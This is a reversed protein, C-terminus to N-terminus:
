LTFYTSLPPLPPPLRPQLPLNFALSSAIWQSKCTSLHTSFCIDLPLPEFPKVRSTSQSINNSWPFRPFVFGSQPCITFSEHPFATQVALRLRYSLIHAEQQRFYYSPPLRTKLPPGSLSSSTFWCFAASRM